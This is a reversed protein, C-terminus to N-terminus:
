WKRQNNFDTGSVQTVGNQAPGSGKQYNMFQPIRYALNHQPGIGSGLMHEIVPKWRDDTFGKKFVIDQFSVPFLPKANWLETHNHKEVWDVFKKWVLFGKETLGQIPPSPDTEIERSLDDWSKTYIKQLQDTLHYRQKNEGTPNGDSSAKGREASEGKGVGINSIPLYSRSPEGRGKVSNQSRNTKLEKDGVFIGAKKKKFKPNGGKIGNLYADVSRKFDKVMRRQYIIGASSRSIVRNEELVRIYGAIEEQSYPLFKSLEMEINDVVRLQEALTCNLTLNLWLNDEEKDEPIVVRNVRRNVSKELKNAKQANIVSCYGYPFCLFLQCILDMYFGKVDGKLRKLEPSNLWRDPYWKMFIQKKFHAM